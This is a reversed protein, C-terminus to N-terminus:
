FIDNSLYQVSRSILMMFAFMFLGQSSKGLMNQFVHNNSTYENYRPIKLVVTLNDTNAGITNTGMFVPVERQPCWIYVKLHLSFIFTIMFKHWRGNLASKASIYHEAYSTSTTYFLGPFHPFQNLTRVVFSAAFTKGM